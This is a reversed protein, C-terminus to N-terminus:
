LHSGSRSPRRRAHRAQVLVSNVLGRSGPAESIM